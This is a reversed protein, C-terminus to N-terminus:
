FCQRGAGGHAVNIAKQISAVVTNVVKGIDAMKKMLEPLKKLGALLKELSSGAEAVAEAAKHGEEAAKAASAAAEAAGPNGMAAGAVAVGLSFIAEMVGLAVEYMQAVVWARYGEKYLAEAKQLETNCDEFTSSNQALATEASEYRAQAQSVLDKGMVAIDTHYNLMDTAAAIWNEQGAALDVYRDYQSEFADAVDLYARVTVEYAAQDLRPVYTLGQEAADGRVSQQTLLTIAQMRIEAAFESSATLTSIFRLIDASDSPFSYFWAASLCFQSRLLRHLQNDQKFENADIYSTTQAKIDGNAGITINCGIDDAAFEPQFVLTSSSSIIQFSTGPRLALTYLVFAAPGTDCRLTVNTSADALFIRTIINVGGYAPLYIESNTTTVTDAYLRTLTARSASLANSLNLSLGRVEVQRTDAHFGCTHFPVSVSSGSNGNSDYDRDPIDFIRVLADYKAAWSM